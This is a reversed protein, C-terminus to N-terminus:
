SRIVVRRHIVLRVNQLATLDQLPDGNVVPVDARELAPEQDWGLPPQVYQRTRGAPHM